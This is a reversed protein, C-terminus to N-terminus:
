SRRGFGYGGGGPSALGFQGDPGKGAGGDTAAAGAVSALGTLLCLVGVLALSYAATLYSYVASSRLGM